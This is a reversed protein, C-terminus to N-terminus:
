DSAAGDAPPEAAEALSAGPVTPAAHRVRERHWVYLGAGILVLAGTLTTPDPLSDFVLAGILVSWLLTSYSFPALLSASAMLFAHIVLYQGLANLVGVGLLLLWELGTPARWPPWAMPAIAIWGLLSSLALITLARETGRMLRTLILAIAWCLSSALPLLMAWQFSSAGPRLIVLVGAFGIGVAAWRRPGVREGLLPISLATVYLPSVFGIATALELPLYRLASIFLTASALLLLGRLVHLAMRRTHLLREARRHWLIPLLIVLVVGYRVWVIQQPSLSAALYKAAGDSTVFLFMALLLLGIAALPREGHDATGHGHVGSGPPRSASV